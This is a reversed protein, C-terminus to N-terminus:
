PVITEIIKTDEADVASKQEATNASTDALTTDVFTRSRSAVPAPRCAMANMLMQKSAQDLVIEENDIRFHDKTYVGKEGSRADEWAQGAKVFEGTVELNATLLSLM